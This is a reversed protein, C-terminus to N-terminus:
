FGEQPVCTKKMNESSVPLTRCIAPPAKQLSPVRFAAGGALISGKEWLVGSSSSLIISLCLYTIWVQVRSSLNRFYWALRDSWPFCRVFKSGFHFFELKWPFFWFKPFSTNLVMLKVAKWCRFVKRTLCVSINVFALKKYEGNFLTVTQFIHM